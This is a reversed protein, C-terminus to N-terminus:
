MKEFKEGMKKIAINQEAITQKIGKIHVDILRQTRGEVKKIAETAMWLSALGVLLAVVSIIATIGGM